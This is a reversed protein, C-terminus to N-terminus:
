QARRLPVVNEDTRGDCYNAWAIMLERRKDFLDGRQYAAVM